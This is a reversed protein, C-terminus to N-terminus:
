SVNQRFFTLSCRHHRRFPRRRRGVLRSRRRHRRRCRCRRQPDM